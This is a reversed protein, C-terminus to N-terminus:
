VVGAKKLEVMFATGVKKLTASADKPECYAIIIAKDCKFAGLTKDKATAQLGQMMKGAIKSEKPYGEATTFRVGDITVYKGAGTKKGKATATEIPKTLTAVLSSIDDVTIAGKAGASSAIKAGAEDYVYLEADLKPNDVFDKWAAKSRKKLMEIGKLAPAESEPKKDDEDQAAKLKKKVETIAEADRGRKPRSVSLCAERAATRPSSMIIVPGIGLFILHSPSEPKSRRKTQTFFPQAVRQANTGTFSKLKFGGNLIKCVDSRM